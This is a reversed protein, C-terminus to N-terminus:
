DTATISEFSLSKLAQTFQTPETYGSGLGMLRHYNFVIDDVTLERGNMPPKNHWHVGQRVKVIYTLPDPQSWSEALQGTM